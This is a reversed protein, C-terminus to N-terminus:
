CGGQLGLDGLWGVRARTVVHGLRGEGGYAVM